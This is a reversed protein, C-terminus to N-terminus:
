DRAYNEIATRVSGHITLLNSAIEEEVQLEDMIM